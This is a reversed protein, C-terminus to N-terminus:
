AKSLKKPAKTNSSILRIGNQNAAVQTGRMSEKQLTLPEKRCVQYESIEHCKLQPTHTKKQQHQTPEKQYLSM